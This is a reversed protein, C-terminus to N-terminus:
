GGLFEASAEQNALSLVVFAIIVVSSILFVPNHIDLGLPRINDQGMEFETEYELHQQPSDSESM